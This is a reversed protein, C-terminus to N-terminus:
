LAGHKAHPFPSHALQAGLGRRANSLCHRRLSCVSWRADLAIAAPRGQAQGAFLTSNLVVGDPNLKTLFPIMQSNTPSPGSTIPFDPSNTNGTIYANGNSDVAMATGEDAGSGGLYIFYALETAAANLKAVFLDEGHSPILSNEVVGLVYLNGAADHGLAQITCNEQFFTSFGAARATHVGFFVTVVLLLLNCLFAV